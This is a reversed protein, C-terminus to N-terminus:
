PRRKETGSNSKEQSYGKRGDVSSKLQVDEQLQPVTFAYNGYEGGTVYFLIRKKRSLPDAKKVVIQAM